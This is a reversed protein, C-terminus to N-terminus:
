VQDPNQRATIRLYSLGGLPALVGKVPVSEILYGGLPSVDSVSAPTNIADHLVWGLCLALAALLGGASIIAKKM